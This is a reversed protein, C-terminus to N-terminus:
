QRAAGHRYPGEDAMPAFAREAAAAIAAIEAATFIVPRSDILRSLRRVPQFVVGGHRLGGRPLRAGHVAVLPFVVVVRDLEAGLVEAVTKATRAATAHFGTLSRRGAWVRRHDAWLRVRWTWRRSAIAYVGTPGVVLHDLNTTPLAPLMRDHLVHFAAPDLGALRRGTRREALAGQRWSTAPGPRNRLYLAHAGFLGAAGALGMWGGAVAAVLVGGAVALAFRVLLRQRRYEGSLTRYRAWASAGAGGGRGRV